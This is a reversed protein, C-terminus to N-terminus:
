NTRPMPTVEIIGHIDNSKEYIGIGARFEPKLEIGTDQVCQEVGKHALNLIQFNGDSIVEDHILSIFLNGSPLQFSILIPYPTKINKFSESDIVPTLYCEVKTAYGPKPLEIWNVKQLKEKVTTLRLESEPIIIQFLLTTLTSNPEQRQWRTIHREHNAKNNKIVWESTLSCQCLGSEHLSIKMDSGMMRSQIYIDNKGKSGTWIKWVTSRLGQESGICFRFESMPKKGAWDKALLEAQELVTVTAQEQM